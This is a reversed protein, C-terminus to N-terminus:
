RKAINNFCAKQSLKHPIAISNHNSIDVLANEEIYRDKEKPSMKNFASSSHKTYVFAPFEFCEESNENSTIPNINEKFNEISNAIFQINYEEKKSKKPTLEFPDYDIMEGAFDDFQYDEEDEDNKSYSDLYQDSYDYLLNDDDSFLSYEYLKSDDILEEDVKSDQHKIQSNEM